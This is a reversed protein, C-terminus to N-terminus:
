NSHILISSQIPNLNKELEFNLTKGIRTYYCYNRHTYSLISSCDCVAGRRQHGHRQIARGEAVESTIYIPTSM